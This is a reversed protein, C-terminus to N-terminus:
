KGSILHYYFLLLFLKTRVQHYTHFILCISCYPAQQGMRKNYERESLPNYPRCQWLQTLPKAWEEKEEQEVEADVFTEVSQTTFHFISLLLPFAHLSYSSPPYRPFCQSKSLHFTFFCHFIYFIFPLHILENVSSTILGPGSM